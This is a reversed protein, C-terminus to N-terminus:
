KPWVGKGYDAAVMRVTSESGVFHPVLNPSSLMSLYVTGSKNIEALEEATLQWATIMCSGNDFVDISGITEEDGEPARFRRNTGKFDIGAAM